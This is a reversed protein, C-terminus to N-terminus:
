EHTLSYGTEVAIKRWVRGIPKNWGTFAGVKDVARVHCDLNGSLGMIFYGEPKFGNGRQSSNVLM